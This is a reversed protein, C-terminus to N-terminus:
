KQPPGNPANVVFTGNRDVHVLPGMKGSVIQEVIPAILEPNPEDDFFAFAAPNGSVDGVLVHALWRNSTENRMKNLGASAFRSAVLDFVPPAQITMLTFRQVATSLEREGINRWGLIPASLNEYAREICWVPEPRAKDSKAFHGAIGVIAMPAAARDDSAVANGTREAMPAAACAALHAGASNAAAGTLETMAQFASEQEAAAYTARFKFTWGSFDTVWIGTKSQGVDYLASLWAPDSTFSEQSDAAILTAGPMSMPIASKAGELEDQLSEGQRRSLYLTIRDRTATDYQCWVDFGFADTTILATLRFRAASVPCKLRSQLHTGSADAERQWISKPVDSPSAGGFLRGLLGEGAVAAGSAAFFLCLAASIAVKM